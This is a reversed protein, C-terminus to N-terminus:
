LLLLLVMLVELLLLMGLSPLLSSSELPSSLIMLVWLVVYFTTYVCWEFDNEGVAAQFDLITALPMMRM